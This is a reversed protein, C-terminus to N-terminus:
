IGSTAETSLGFPGAALLTRHREFEFSISSAMQPQGANMGGNNGRISCQEFYNIAIVRQKADRQVEILGFPIKYLVSNMGGASIVRTLYEGLSDDDYLDVGAVALGKIWATDGGTFLKKSDNSLTETSKIFAVTPRYLSHVLSAGHVILKSISGNGAATGVTQTKRASGVEPVMRGNVGENWQFSQTLGVPYLPIDVFTDGAPLFPVTSLLLSADPTAFDNPNTAVEVFNNRYDGKALTDATLIRNSPQAM